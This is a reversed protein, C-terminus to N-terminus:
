DHGNSISSKAPRARPTAEPESEDGERARNGGAGADAGLM